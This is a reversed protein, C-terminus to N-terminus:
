RLYTMFIRVFSKTDSDSPLATHVLLARVSGQPPHQAVSMGVAVGNTRPEEQARKGM